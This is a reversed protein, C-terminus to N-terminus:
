PAPPTVPRIRRAPAQAPIPSSQDEKPRWWLTAAVVVPLLVALAKWVLAHISRLRRPAGPAEPAGLVAGGHNARWWRVALLPWLAILGPTIILRFGLGAGHSGPDLVHLGRLHFGVAFLSGFVAYAALALLATRVFEVM